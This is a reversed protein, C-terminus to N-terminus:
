RAGVGEAAASIRLGSPSSNIAFKWPYSCSKVSVTKRRICAPLWRTSWRLRWSRWGPSRNAWRWECNFLKCVLNLCATIVLRFWWFWRISASWPFILWYWGLWCNSFNWKCSFARSFRSCPPIVLKSSCFFDLQSFEVWLSLVTLGSFVRCRPYPM